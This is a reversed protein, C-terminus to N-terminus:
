ISQHELMRCYNWMREEASKIPKFSWKMNFSWHVSLSILLHPSNPVSQMISPRLRAVFLFRDTSEGVLSKSGVKLILGYDDAYVSTEPLEFAWQGDYKSLSEEVDDKKAKSRIWGKWKSKEQFQEEFYINSSSSQVVPANSKKDETVQKEDDDSEDAKILSLSALLLFCLFCLARMSWTHLWLFSYSMLTNSMFPKISRCGRLNISKRRECEMAHQHAIIPHATKAFMSSTLMCRLCDSGLLYLCSGMRWESKLYISLCPCGIRTASQHLVSWHSNEYPSRNICM